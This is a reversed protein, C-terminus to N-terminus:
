SKTGEKALWKIVDTSFVDETKYRSPSFITRSYINVKDGFHLAAQFHSLSLYVDLKTHLVV